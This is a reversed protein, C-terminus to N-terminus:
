GGSTELSAICPLPSKDANTGSPDLGDYKFDFVITHQASDARSRVPQQDGYDSVDYSCGHLKRRFEPDKFPNISLTQLLSSRHQLQHLMEQVPALISVAM